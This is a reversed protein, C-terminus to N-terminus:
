KLINILITNEIYEHVHRSDHTFQMLYYLASQMIWIKKTIKNSCLQRSHEAIYNINIGSHLKQWIYSCIQNFICKNEQCVSNNAVNGWSSDPFNDLWECVTLFFIWISNCSRLQALFNLCSFDSWNSYAM